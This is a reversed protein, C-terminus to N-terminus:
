RLALTAALIALLIRYYGFIALPHKQLYRLMWRIALIASMFATAMGLAPTFWGYQALIMSGHRFADYATSAGLTILGLLFSFEVAAPISLGVWLGGLLTALSRSIGPWMALCQALGICLAMKWTMAEIPLQPRLRHREIWRSMVLIAVGGLFWATIVPWLGWRSGGFLYQKIWDEASLGIVAAPLFALGLHIGLRRGEPHAGLFGRGVQQLRRFYLGAVALIAGAQICIAYAGAVEESAATQGIGLLHQTLILHGTSSVPLFETLGEVMGLIVAERWPMAQKRPVTDQAAAGAGSVTLLLLLLLILCPRAHRHM